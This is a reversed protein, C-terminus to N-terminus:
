ACAGRRYQEKVCPCSLGEVVAAGHIMPEHGEEVMRVQPMRPRRRGEPRARRRLWLTGAAAAAAAMDPPRQVSRLLRPVHRSAPPARRYLPTFPPGLLTVSIQNGNTRLLDHTQVETQM